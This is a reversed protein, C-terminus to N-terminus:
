RDFVKIYYRNRWLKGNCRSISKPNTKHAQSASYISHYSKIEDTLLDHMEVRRPANRITKLRYYREDVPPQNEKKEMKEEDIDQQQLVGKEVLLSIIAPKNLYSSGTINNLKLLNKLEPLKM